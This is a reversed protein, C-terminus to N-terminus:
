KITIFFSATNFDFCIQMGEKLAMEGRDEPWMSPPSVKCQAYILLKFMALLLENVTGVSTAACEAPISPVNISQM